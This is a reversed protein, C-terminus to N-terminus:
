WWGEARRTNLHGEPFIMRREPEAPAQTRIAGVTRWETPLAVPVAAARQVTNNDHCERKQDLEVGWSPAIDTLTRSGLRGSAYDACDAASSKRRHRRM